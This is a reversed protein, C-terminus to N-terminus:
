FVEALMCRVSGGGVREITPVPVALVADTCAELRARDHPGFCRQAAESMVLVRAHGLAEGGSRPGGSSRPAGGAALELVNGAFGGVADLGIEILERGSAALREHVSERDRPAISETGVVTLRAGISLMVNTHYLPAGRRDSADFVVAEYGMERCWERLVDVDTRPSRCAYAIRERHDLVLSGTGELFRGGAEHRTLDLVRRVRFGLREAVQDLLERRRERRRPACMPYLVVTGDAHFSVWNNPFVADPKPPVPVDEAVCVCVGASELATVLRDFERSASRRVTEADADPRHQFANSAATQPDYGFAAPRIMLVASACQRRSSEGHAQSPSNM